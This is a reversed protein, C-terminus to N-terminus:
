RGGMQQIVEDLKIGIHREIDIKSVNLDRQLQLKKVQEDIYRSNASNLDEIKIVNDNFDKEAKTYATYADQTIQYQIELKQKTLLYDEYRTLIDAKILRFRDNREAEAIMYKEYSIKVNNSTKSFIDLPIQVGFNYRPYYGSYNTGAAKPDISFENLNGAIFIEALWSNKALRIEYEAITVNHDAIEYLPDQLALQVLRERIDVIKASDANLHYTSTRAPQTPNVQAYIFSGTFLLAVFLVQKMNKLKLTKPRFRSLTIM